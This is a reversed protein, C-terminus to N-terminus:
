RIIKKGPTSFIPPFTGTYVWEILIDFTAAHDEPFFATSTSSGVFEGSKFMKEFYPIKTCLMTKHVRFHEKEEGVYLDVIEAGTRQQIFLRRLGSQSSTFSYVEQVYVLSEFVHSKNRCSKRYMDLASDALQTLCIKEVLSYFKLFNWSAGTTATGIDFWRLNVSYVWEVLIDFAEPFDEPFSASGDTAEKFGGNFMKEFYPIKNCLFSKHVRFLAKEPGVAVANRGSGRTSGFTGRPYIGSGRGRPAIDKSSGRRGYPSSM